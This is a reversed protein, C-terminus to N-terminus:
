FHYSLFGLRLVFDRYSRYRFEIRWSLCKTLGVYGFRRLNKVSIYLGHTTHFECNVQKVLNDEGVVNHFGFSGGICCNRFCTYTPFPATLKLSLWAFLMSWVLLIANTFLLSCSSYWFLGSDFALKCTEGHYKKYM